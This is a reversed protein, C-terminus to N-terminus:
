CAEHRRSSQTSCMLVCRKCTCSYRVALLQAQALPSMLRNRQGLMAMLFVAHQAPPLAHATGQAWLQRLPGAGDSQRSSAAAVAGNSASSTSLLAVWLREHVASTHLMALAACAAPLISVAESASRGVTGCCQTSQAADQSPLLWGAVIDSHGRLVASSIVEALFVSALQGPRRAPHRGHTGELTISGAGDTTTQKCCAAALSGLLHTLLRPATLAACRQRMGRVRDPLGVLQSALASFDLQLAQAESSQAVAEHLLDTVLPRAPTIEHPAANCAVDAEAQMGQTQAIHDSVAFAEM